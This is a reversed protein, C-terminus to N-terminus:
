QNKEPPGAILLLLTCAISLTMAAEIVVIIPKEFGAPYALFDGAWAFGGFGAMLFAAIGAVLAIRLRLSDIAPPRAAGAFFALAGMAAILAGGAFAGGPEDAGVWFLYVGVLVGIPILLRAMFILPGNQQTPFEFDPRGNWFRDRALSWVAVLALLLVAKELMTDLARYAMLTATVANGMGTKELPAMANPALTPAPLPLALVAVILGATVTAALAAAVVRTISSPRKDENKEDRLRACACLLLAGTVGGGVAAETIAVDPASLIMWALSLLLGCATFGIAAAFHRREFIAFAAASVILAALASFLFETPNM